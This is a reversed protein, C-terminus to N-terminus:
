ESSNTRRLFEIKRVAFHCKKTTLELGALYICMFVARIIRTLDTANNAAFGIDDVSQRCQDSKVVTDLYERMFSLFASVSRSLGLAPRKYASARSAFTFALMGVSRQDAM